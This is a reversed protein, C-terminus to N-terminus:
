IDPLARLPISFAAGANEGETQEPTCTVTEGNRIFCAMGGSVEFLFSDKNTDYSIQDLSKHSRFWFM